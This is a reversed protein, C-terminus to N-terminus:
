QGLEDELKMYIYDKLMDEKISKQLIDVFLTALDDIDRKSEKGDLPVMMTFFKGNGKQVRVVTNEEPDEPFVSYGVGSDMLKIKRMDCKFLVKKLLDEHLLDLEM